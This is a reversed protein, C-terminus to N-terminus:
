FFIPTPVLSIGVQLVTTNSDEENNSSKGELCLYVRRIYVKHGGLRCLCQSLM